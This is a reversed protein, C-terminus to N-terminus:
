GIGPFYQVFLVFGLLCVHFIEAIAHRKISAITLSLFMGAAPMALFFHQNPL